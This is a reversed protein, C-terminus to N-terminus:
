RASPPTARAAVHGDLPEALQEADRSLMSHRHAAFAYTRAAQALRPMDTGADAQLRHHERRAALRDATAERWALRLEECDRIRQNPGDASIIRGPCRPPATRRARTAPPARGSSASIEGGAPESTPV